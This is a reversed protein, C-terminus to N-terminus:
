VDEAYERSQGQLEGFEEAPESYGGRVVGSNAENIDDCYCDSVGAIQIIQAREKGKMDKEDKRRQTVESRAEELKDQLDEVLRENESSRLPDTPAFSASVHGLIALQKESEKLKRALEANQKQLAQLKDHSTQLSTVSGTQLM